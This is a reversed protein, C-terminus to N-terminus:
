AKFLLVPPKTGRRKFRRFEIVKGLRDDDDDEECVVCLGADAGFVAELRGLECVVIVEAGLSGFM